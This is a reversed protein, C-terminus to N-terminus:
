ISVQMISGRADMLKDGYQKTWKKRARPALHLILNNRPHQTDGAIMDCRACFKTLVRQGHKVHGTGIGSSYQVSIALRCYTFISGQTPGM